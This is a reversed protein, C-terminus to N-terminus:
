VLLDAGEWPPPRPHNIYKADEDKLTRGGFAIPRGQIDVGSYDAAVFATM